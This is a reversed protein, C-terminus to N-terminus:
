GSKRKHYANGKFEVSARTFVRRFCRKSFSSEKHSAVSWSPISPGRRLVDSSSRRRRVGFLVAGFNPPQGLVRSIPFSLSFFIFVLSSFLSESNLCFLSESHLCRIFGSARAPPRLNKLDSEPLRLVVRDQAVIAKEENEGGKKKMM